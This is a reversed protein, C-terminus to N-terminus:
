QVKTVAYGQKTLIEKIGDVIDTRVNNQIAEISDSHNKEAKGDIMYQAMYEFSHEQTMDFYVNDKAEYAIKANEMENEKLLQKQMVGAGIAGGAAFAIALGLFLTTRTVGKEM